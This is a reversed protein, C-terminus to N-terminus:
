VQESNKLQLVLTELALDANHTNTKHLTYQINALTRMLTCGKFNVEREIGRGGVSRGTGRGRKKAGEKEIGSGEEAENPPFIQVPESSLNLM